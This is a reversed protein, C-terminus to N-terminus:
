AVENALAEHILVMAETDRECYEKLDIFTQVVDLDPSKKIVADKWLRAASGGEKINLDAYSFGPVMVPLVKKISSSGEFKPDDIIGDKFPDMLDVVRSNFHRLFNAYDPSFEAMEKNRSTEFPAYWVLISGVQGVHSTLSKLLQPIPNDKTVHLYELHEVPSGAERKVHLSYQFPVQQYPRTGEWLPIVNQSTEYDFYYIPYKLSTLFKQLNAKDVTRKSQSEANWYKATAGSLFSVDTIESVLKIKLKKLNKAQRVTLYPLHYVSGDQLKPELGKRIELWESFANLGTNEPALDPIIDSKLIELATKINAKTKEILKEVNETVDTLAVLKKSIIEGDRVYGSDVHAVRCQHIKYGADELVAKQFALDLEHETKASTSSKIETLIYGNVGAELIDTICTLEGSRYMGQSVCQAGGAWAASTRSLMTNYEVIDSFGIKQADSFLREAYEEFEYGDDMRQQVSPHIPQLKTPDNKKLWLWAPHRLFLMYDSKSLMKPERIPESLSYINVM